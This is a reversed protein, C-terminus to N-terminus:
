YSRGRIGKHQCMKVVYGANAKANKKLQLIRLRPFDIGIERGLECRLGEEPPVVSSNKDRKRYRCM